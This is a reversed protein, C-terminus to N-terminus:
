KVGHYTDDVIAPLMDNYVGSVKALEIQEYRKNLRFYRVTYTDSPDLMVEMYRMRGGVKFRLGACGGRECATFEHAGVRMLSM